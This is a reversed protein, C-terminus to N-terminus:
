ILKKGFVISLQKRYDSIVMELEHEYTGGLGSMTLYVLYFLLNAGIGFLFCYKLNYSSIWFIQLGLKIAYAIAVLCVIFTFSSSPITFPRSNILDVILCIAFKLPLYIILGAILFILRDYEDSM